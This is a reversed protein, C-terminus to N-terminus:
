CGGQKKQAGRPYELTVTSSQCLEPPFEILSALIRSVEGTSGCTHSSPEKESTVMRPSQPAGPAAPIQGHKREGPTERPDSACQTGGAKLAGLAKQGREGSAQCWACSVM